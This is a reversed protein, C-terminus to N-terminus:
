DTKRRSEDSTLRKGAMSDALKLLSNKDTHAAPSQSQLSPPRISQSVENYSYLSANNTVYKALMVLVELEIFSIISLNLM